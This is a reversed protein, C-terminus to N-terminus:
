RRIKIVTTVGAAAIVAAIMFIMFSDGTEPTATGSEDGTAESEAPAPEATGDDHYFAASANTLQEGPACTSLDDLDVGALIVHDGVVIDAAGAFEDSEGQIGILFGGEPVERETQVNHPRGISAADNTKTVRWNGNADKEVIFTFFYNYDKATGFLYEVIKGITTLKNGDADNTQVLITNVGHDYVSGSNLAVTLFAESEAKASAPLVIAVILLM